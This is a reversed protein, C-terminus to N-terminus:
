YHRQIDGFAPIKLGSEELQKETKSLSCNGKAFANIYISGPISQFQWNSLSVGVKTNYFSDGYVQALKETLVSHGRNLLDEVYIQDDDRIFFGPDPTILIKDPALPSIYFKELSCDDKTFFQIYTPDVLCLTPMGEINLTTVLFNHGVIQETIATHTMSPAPNCGIDRFYYYLISQALDCKNRFNNLGPSILERVKYNINDLFFDAEEKTLPMKSKVLNEIRALEEYNVDDPIYPKFDIIYDM